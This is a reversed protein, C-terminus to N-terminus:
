WLVCRHSANMTSNAPCNFVTSFEEMNQMPINVRLYDPSHSDYQILHQRTKTRMRSCWIMAEAIFFLQRGTLNELGPLRTDEGGCEDELLRDYAKYAMRMGGNDAINEGVTNVGNVTMNAEEDTINGYQEIFCQAKKTFETRTQNSWWQKLSGNADFQSGTDDFGHTMEHGVVVGIAGFNLSRPLGYQYFVGQLIGSPYVMENASPNYFANVIAPGVIWVSKADYEKGLHSLERKWNNSSIHSAMELFSSSINLDPVYKYLQDLYTTNLLWTPYGIKSIMQKLKDEAASRTYNDMWDSQILTENFIARIREVIDEVEKKAQESFKHQVYLYGVIEPMMANMTDVCKEWRENDTVIGKSAKTLNFSANRFEASARGAWGLVLRLGAYNYLLDCDVNQLFVNLKNYYEQAFLEITESENLTINVYAFQKSLLKLLPVNSFNKELESINTRHYLALIDRREEPPATLNALQGEFDFIKNALSAQEEETINPKMIKLAKKILEKYAKTINANRTENPHILQNRGVTSFSLQDLQIVYTTLKTLDRDVSMGFLTFIPLNTFVDTCNKVDSKVHDEICTKPWEGFGSKNMLSHLAQLQDERKPVELCANYAAALKNTINQAKEKLTINGLINKLTGKLEENLLTFSGISSKSEPIKHKDIWGGCAYQYFDDCPHVSTNLSEKIMKAEYNRVTVPTASSLCLLTTTLSAFTVLNMTSM